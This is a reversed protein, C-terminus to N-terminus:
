VVEKSICIIFHAVSQGLTALLIAFYQDWPRQQIATGNDTAIMADRATSYYFHVPNTSANIRGFPPRVLIFFCSEKRGTTGQFTQLDWGGNSTIRRPSAVTTQVEIPGQPNQELFAFSQLM